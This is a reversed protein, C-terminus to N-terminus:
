ARRKVAGRAGLRARKDPGVDAGGVHARETAVSAAEAPLPQAFRLLLDTMADHDVAPSFLYGQGLVCGFASLQAAQNETEIGEAVVRIGLQEAISLLGGVIVSSPNGPSLSDVFSKDIKLVDVPVTLLHTLSAFGTGFDDLAVRLGLERMAKIERAIVHDRRGMYVNETIEVILHSLPVNAAAFAASLQRGLKGRHVDAYSVNLGVHQVPIGLDLWKRIDAVICGLMRETLSCAIQADSTADSFAAAPIIDGSATIMRCLAEVGVIERTDLRFIPQYYAEVRGERLAEGLDRIATLRKTIATGIGPWYRVFGGRGTEKAHYLAFDAKQRVAEATADGISLVAGGITAQPSIQHGDCSVPEALCDLLRQARGSIDRLDEPTEWIIAFEDGGIRFVKAPASAAALRSAVERLLADGVHHGFTDNTVKLNDLDLIMISWTGPEDCSLDALARNFSARNLLGTLDDINAKREREIVRDHRELAIACLHTCLAVIGKEEATPGRRERYYIAFTGLVVGAADSIPSSWCAVLGLPLARHKFGAWKPDTAIDASVVPGNIYAATGCSGAEPGIPVGDLAASYDLPLSPASLPRLFGARDVALVSCIGNPLLTEVEECLRDITAKLACGTAIM